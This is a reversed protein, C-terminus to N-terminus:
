DLLTQSHQEALIYYIHCTILNVTDTKGTEPSM